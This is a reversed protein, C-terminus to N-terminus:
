YPRNRIRLRYLIRSLLLEIVMFTAVTTAIEFWSMGLYQRLALLPLLSEPVQDLGLAMDSPALGLRRKVFSSFLDGLMTYLGFLAGETFGLGVLPAALTTAAIAGSLGRLTKSSGFLPRGDFFRLGGDVPLNAFQKNAFRRLLIPMGNAISLM